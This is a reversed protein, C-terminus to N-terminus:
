NSTRTSLRVVGVGDVYDIQTGFPESLRTVDEIIKRGLAEDAFMPRGRVTRPKGFGLSIPHLKLEVLMDGEFVPM